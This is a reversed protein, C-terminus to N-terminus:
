KNGERVDVRSKIRTWSEALRYIQKGTIDYTEILYECLKTDVYKYYIDKAHSLSVIIENCEGLSDDLYKQFGKMQHRKAYGEAILRPIAKCSRRLQDKLDYKEEDPLKPVIKTMVEISAKYSNQYVILDKFSVIKKDM